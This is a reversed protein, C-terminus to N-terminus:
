PIVSLFSVKQFWFYKLLLSHFIEKWAKGALMRALYKVVEVKGGDDEYM